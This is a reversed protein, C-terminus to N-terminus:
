QARGGADAPHQQEIEAEQAQSAFDIADDGEDPEPEVDEPAIKEPPGIPLDQPLMGIKKFYTEMVAKSIPAAFEGGHGSNEVIIAMAIKPNEAPAFSIFWAHDKFREGLSEKGLAGTQATGTKGGVTIGPIAARKGTGHPDNVVDIAFKRITDFVSKDFNITNQVQPAFERVEGSVHDVVKKVLFPKYVTGGNALASIAVAMQIPTVNLYGQGISVPLTDGPYWREGRVERKWTDSPLIGPDEGPLGIGTQGGFGFPRTFKEIGEIGLLQGLQYFYVNCSVTIAKEMATAGHGEHKHCKYPRGGFMYYGPCNLETSPSIKKAALGAMAMFLKFTSGAPYKSSIARNSLPKNKDNALQEWDQAVMKGSFINLDFTPASALALVEGNNPDLAVVAGRHGALGEEAVRQMDSDITLFLDDGMQDDVIGLEGRRHGMADVEVQIYGSKGRLSEEWQKEIGSQGILDGTHYDGNGQLADLQTKNIERAYGLVQSSLTNGPYARAPVTNVIVGPLRYTNVKIKALEERSVDAMVIRPEFHRGKGPSQLQKQLQAYERGTIESLTHLTENVNPTDELILAVDFAPRNRVLVHENRDYITGRPPVTRVTRVRNNESQDRFFAGYVVQLYWLRVILLGFMLCLFTSAAVIRRTFVSQEIKEGM